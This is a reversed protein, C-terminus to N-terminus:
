LLKFGSCFTYEKGGLSVANAVDSEGYGRFQVHDGVILDAVCTLTSSRFQQRGGSGFFDRQHLVASAGGSAGKWVAVGISGITQGATTTDTMTTTVSFVYKGAQAAPVTFTYTSTDFCDGSAGDDNWIETDMPIVTWTSDTYGFNTTRYAGFTPVNSGSAAAEWTADGDADSTLVKGAGAGGGPIKITDTASGLTLITTAGEPEITDVNLLSM